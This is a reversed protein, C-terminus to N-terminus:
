FFSRFYSFYDHFDVVQTIEVAGAKTTPLTPCFLLALVCNGCLFACFVFFSAKKKTSKTGKQPCNMQRKGRSSGQRGKGGCFTLSCARSRRVYKVSGCTPPFALVFILYNGRWGTQGGLKSKESPNIKRPPSRTNLPWHGTALRRFCCDAVGGLRLGIKVVFAVFLVFFFRGSSRCLKFKKTSPRLFRATLSRTTSFSRPFRIFRILVIM